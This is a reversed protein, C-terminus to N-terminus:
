RRSEQEGTGAQSGFAESTAKGPESSPIETAFMLLWFFRLM